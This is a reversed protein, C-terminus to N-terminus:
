IQWSAWTEKFLWQESKGNEGRVNMRESERERGRMIREISKKRSNNAKHHDIMNVNEVHRWWNQLFRLFQFTINQSCKNWHFASFM